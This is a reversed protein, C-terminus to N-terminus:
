LRCSDFNMSWPLIVANSLNPIALLTIVVCVFLSFIRLYKM